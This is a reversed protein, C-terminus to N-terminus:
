TTFTFWRRTWLGSGAPGLDTANVWVKYTKSYALGSLALTKTGNAAGNGSNTQGSNCQITWSFYDGDSDNIPISWTFGLPNNISGNAPTPDFFIPPQSAKTTFTYWARTFLGSSTPDTANVCIKYTTSYALSSLALSKTGNIAGTGSNIQGNSCQISWSIQNGEPDDIPISWMLSLPNDMSGNAPNPTGFIPPQNLNNYITLITSMSGTAGFTDTVTLSVNYTGLGLVDVQAATLLPAPGDLLYTGEILWQYSVIYDGAAANPDFSDSGDFGVDAPLDTNYPGGVDAVPPLNGQNVKVAIGYALDTQGIDDTVRLVPHYIAFMQYSHSVTQGLAEVM